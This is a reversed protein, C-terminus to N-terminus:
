VMLNFRERLDKKIKELYTDSLFGTGGRIIEQAYDLPPATEEDKKVVIFTLVNKLLKGNVTVDIFAPRYAKSKVGERRYLYPLSEKPVEYVKGEVRGSEELIDARGGDYVRRTYRLQYGEAIGRGTVKQFFHDVGAEKFRDTDMCSGYAFYYFTSNTNLLHYVRWDGSRIEDKLLDEHDPHIFYVYAKHSATDTYVTQKVRDYINKGGPGRYDELQDLLQLQHQDIEYLEGFVKEKNSHLLAPYGHGTDFLRGYTWAQEAFCKAGSLLHHNAEHKRLTGYVFVLISEVM